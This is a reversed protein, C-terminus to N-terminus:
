NEAFPKIGVSFLIGTSYLKVKGYGIGKLPINMYPEATISIKNSLKKEFGASLRLSALYHQNENKIQYNNDRPQMYGPKNIYTYDESNMFYSSVGASAFWQHKPTKNFVYNIIIPVEYIKCNADIFDLDPYYDWFGTTSPHYDSPDAKYIKRAVYFGSRIAFNKNIAYSIGAGFVPQVKGINKLNVFSVDPGASLQFSFSKGFNNSAKTNTTKKSTNQEEKKGTVTNDLTLPFDIDNKIENKIKSQSSDRGPVQHINGLATPNEQQNSKGFDIKKKMETSNFVPPVFTEINNSKINEFLKADNKIGNYIFTPNISNSIFPSDSSNSKINIDGPKKQVFLNEQIGNLTDRQVTNQMKSFVPEDTHNRLILWSTGGALMILILLLWFFKRKDKKNQPMQEDLKKELANWAEEPFPVEQKAAAEQIKIDLKDPKM